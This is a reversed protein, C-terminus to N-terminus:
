LKALVPFDTMVVSRLGTQTAYDSLPRKFKSIREIFQHLRADNDFPVKLNVYPNEQVVVAKTKKGKKKQQPASHNSEDEVVVVDWNAFLDVTNQLIEMSCSEYFSIQGEAFMKEAIWQMREVLVKRQVRLNPQLSILSISATWYSDILPWIMQSVFTIIGQGNQTIDITADSTNQRLVGRRLLSDVTNTLESQPDKKPDNVFELGLLDRLFLAEKILHDKTVNGNQSLLSLLTCAIIGDQAYLHILQNRYYDLILASQNMKGTETFLAPIYNQRVKTVLNSLLGLGDSVLNKSVGEYAVSGGRLVIDDRLWEAKTVLDEFTIGKRHALVVTAVIATTTITLGQNLSSTIAYALDSTLQKKDAEDKYPNFNPKQSVNKEIFAKASIPANAIINVRGFNTKLISRAKLLGSFSEKIKQEGLLENSYLEAELVKEYSISVPVITLDPVKNQLFPEMCISLLGFKPHLSKGTRSRKGEIFFEIPSWDTVLRQVYETFIATYLGDHKFSRRMFFAGSNRFVWNVFLISLFDEGAAIHPLPLDYEYLVYSLLLFDVYSRHSPVLLLPGNGLNQRIRDIGKEEVHLGQYIRRFVKRLFFGLGRMIKLTMTHAMRDFVQEARKSAEAESIDELKMLNEVATRVRSSKLVLGKTEIPTRLTNLGDLGVNQHYKRSFAWTADPFMNGFFTREGPMRRPEQVLDIKLVDTPPRVDEKLVYKQLGYCLFRFYHEWEFELRLPFVSRESDILQNATKQMESVDFVWHNTTFHVFAGSLAVMSRTAKELLEAEKQQKKTGLHKAYTSFLTSPLKHKLFFQTEYLSQNKYFRFRLPTHNIRKEVNHQRWYMSVYTSLDLWQVPNAKSTGVQFISFGDIDSQKAISILIGNIVSDVPVIDAVVTKDGPLFTVLGLGGYLVAAAVAAISDIWGPVPEVLASAIITPRLFVLPVNGRRNKLIIEAMAKTFTYTNPYNGILGPTAKDIDDPNMQLIMQVMEECDFRLPPLKEQHFGQRDSNVYATSVHVFCQLHNFTKALEFLNLTGLVNQRVAKDLREKFDVTAACHVIVQAQQRVMELDKPKLGLENQQVDGSVPVVKSRVFAEFEREGRESKLRTMIKSEYIESWFRSEANGRIIVFIRGVETVDRLLKELLVKGVFGTCGTLLVGRGKLSSLVSLSAM